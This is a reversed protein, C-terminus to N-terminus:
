FSVIALEIGVIHGGFFTRGHGLALEEIAEAHNDRVRQGYEVLLQYHELAGFGCFVLAECAHVVGEGLEVALDAVFRSVAAKCVPCIRVFLLLFLASWGVLPLPALHSRRIVQGRGSLMDM